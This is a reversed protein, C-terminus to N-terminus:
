RPHVIDGVRVERAGAQAVGAATWWFPTPPTPRWRRLAVLTV